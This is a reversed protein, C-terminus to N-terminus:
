KAAAEILREFADLPTRDATDTVEHGLAVTVLPNGFIEYLGEPSVIGYLPAGSVNQPNSTVDKLFLLVRSQGRLIPLDPFSSAGSSDVSGLQRIVLESAGTGKLYKEVSVLTDTYILPGGRVSGYDVTQLGARKLVTARIVVDSGSVLAGVTEHHEWLASSHARSSKPESTCSALTGAVLLGLLLVKVLRM